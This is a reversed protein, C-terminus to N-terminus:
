RRGMWPYPTSRVVKRGRRCLQWVSKLQPVYRCAPPRRSDVPASSITPPSRLRPRQNVGNLHHQFHDGPSGAPRCPRPIQSTMVRIRNHVSVPHRGHARLQRQTGRGDAGRVSDAIWLMPEAHGTRHTVRLRNTLVNGARFAQVADMDRKDARVGRSELTMEAVGLQQLSRCLQQLCLRRRREPRERTPCSRAVILHRLPRRAGESAGRHGRCSHVLESRITPEARIRRRIRAM